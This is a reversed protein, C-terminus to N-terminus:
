AEIELLWRMADRINYDGNLMVDYLEDGLSTGFLSHMAGHLANSAADHLLHEYPTIANTQLLADTISQIANLMNKAFARTPDAYHSDWGTPETRAEDALLNELLRREDPHPAAHNYV